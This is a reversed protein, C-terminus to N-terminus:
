QSENIHDIITVLSNDYPNGNGLLQDFGYKEYAEFNATLGVEAVVGEVMEQAEEILQMAEQITDLMAMKNM